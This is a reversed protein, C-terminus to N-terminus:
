IATKPMASPRIQTSITIRSQMISFFCAAFYVIESDVLGALPM